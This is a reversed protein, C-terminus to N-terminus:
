FFLFLFIRVLIKLSLLYKLKVSCRELFTRNYKIKIKTIKMPFDDNAFSNFQHPNRVQGSDGISCVTFHSIQTTYQNIKYLINSKNEIESLSINEKIVIEIEM